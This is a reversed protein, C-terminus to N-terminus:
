RAISSSAHNNIHEKALVSFSPQGLYPRNHRALQDAIRIGADHDINHWSILVTNDLQTVCRCWCRDVRSTQKLQNTQGTQDTGDFWVLQGKQVLDLSM